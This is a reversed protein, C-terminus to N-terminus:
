PFVLYWVRCSEELVVPNATHVFEAHISETPNDVPVRTRLITEVLGAVDKWFRSICGLHEGSQGLGM